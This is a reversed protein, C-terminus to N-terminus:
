WSVLPIIEGLFRFGGEFIAALLAALPSMQGEWLQGYSRNWVWVARWSAERWLFLPCAGQTTPIIESAWVWTWSINCSLHSWIITKNSSQNVKLLKIGVIFSLLNRNVIWGQSRCPFRGVIPENRGVASKEWCFYGVSHFWVFEPTFSCGEDIIVKM